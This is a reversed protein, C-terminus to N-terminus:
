RAMAKQMAVGIVKGPGPEQVFAVIRLNSPNDGPKLKMQFDQGFSSRKKLRGIKTLSQVVAVHTLKRGSNEGRLVDSEVHDLAIAVYVDASREASAGDAEVRTKLIRPTTGDFEVSVSNIRVPIKPDSARKQVMPVAQPDGLRLEAAGDVIIQPTYAQSLKLSQVYANQRETFLASSYPDKWGDRNWYDVHESLVILRAGSVPQSGDM